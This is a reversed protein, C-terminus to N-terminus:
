LDEKIKFKNLIALAKGHFGKRYLAHFKRVAYESKLNYIYRKIKDNVIYIDIDIVGDVNKITAQHIIKM